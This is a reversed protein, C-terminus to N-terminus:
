PVRLNTVANVLAWCKDGDQALEIWDTDGGEWKRFIRRLIIRGDVNQDELHDKEELNRRWVKYLGTREGMGRCTLGTSHLENAKVRDEERRRRGPRGIHKKWSTTVTISSTKTLPHKGKKKCASVL